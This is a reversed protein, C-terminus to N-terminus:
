PISLAAILNMYPLSLHIWRLCPGSPLMLARGFALILLKYTFWHQVELFSPGYNGFTVVCPSRVLVNRLASVNRPTGNSWKPPCSLPVRTVGPLDSRPLEAVTGESYRTARAQRRMRAFPGENRHVIERITAPNYRVLVLRICEQAWANTEPVEGERWQSLRSHCPFIPPSASDRTNNVATPGPELCSLDGECPMCPLTVM